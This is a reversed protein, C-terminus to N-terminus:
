NKNLFNNLETFHQDLTFLNNEIKSYSKKSIENKKINELKQILRVVSYLKFKETILKFYINEQMNIIQIYNHKIQGIKSFFAIGFQPNKLDELSNEKFKLKYIKMSFKILLDLINTDHSEGYLLYRIIEVSKKNVLNKFNWVNLNSIVSHENKFLMISRRYANPANKELYQNSYFSFLKISTYSLNVKKIVDLMMKIGLMKSHGIRDWSTEALFIIEDFQNFNTDEYQDKSQIPTWGFKEILFFSLPCHHSILATKNIKHGKSNTSICM